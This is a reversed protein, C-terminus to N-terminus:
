DMIDEVEARRFVCAQGRIEGETNILNFVVAKKIMFRKGLSDIRVGSYNDIYGEQMVRALLLERGNQLPKEATNKSEMGLMDSLSM